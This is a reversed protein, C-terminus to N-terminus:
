PGVPICTVRGKYIVPMMLMRGLLASGPSGSRRLAVRADSLVSVLEVDAELFRDVMREVVSRGMIEVCGLPGKVVLHQEDTGLATSIATEAVTAIIIAGIVM